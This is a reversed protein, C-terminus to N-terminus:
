STVRAQLLLALEPFSCDLLLIRLKGFPSESDVLISLPRLSAAVPGVIHGVGLGLHLSTFPEPM